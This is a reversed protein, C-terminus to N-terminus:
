NEGFLSLFFMLDSIDYINNQNYDYDGFSVQYFYQQVQPYFPYFVNWQSPCENCACDDIYNFGLYGYQEREFIAGTSEDTIRLLFTVVGDCDLEAFNFVKPNALNTLLVDNIYWQFDYGTTDFNLNVTQVFFPESDVLSLNGLYSGGGSINIDQYYNGFAPTVDSQTSGFLSLFKLLSNIDTAFAFSPIFLFAFFLNKM